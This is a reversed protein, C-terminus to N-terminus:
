GLLKEIEDLRLQIGDRRDILKPLLDKQKTERWSHETLKERNVIKEPDTKELVAIDIDLSAIQKIAEDRAESLVEERIKNM